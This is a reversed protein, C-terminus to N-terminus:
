LFFDEASQHAKQLKPKNSPQSLHKTEKKLSPQSNASGNADSQTCVVQLVDGTFFVFFYFCLQIGAQMRSSGKFTKSRIYDIFMVKINITVSESSYTFASKFEHQKSMDTPIKIGNCLLKTHNVDQLQQILLIM